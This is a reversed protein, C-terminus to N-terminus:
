EPVVLEEATEKRRASQEQLVLLWYPPTFGAIVLDDIAAQPAEVANALPGGGCEPCLFRVQPVWPRCVLCLPKGCGACQRTTRYRRGDAACFACDAMSQSSFRDGTFQPM